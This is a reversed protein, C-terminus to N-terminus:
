DGVGSATLDALTRLVYDPAPDLADGPRTVGTM